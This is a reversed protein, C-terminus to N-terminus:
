IKIWAMSAMRQKTQNQRWSYFDDDLLTCRQDTQINNIGMQQLQVTAMHYLNAHSKNHKITTFAHESNPHQTLYHSVFEESVEYQAQQICPGLWAIMEHAPQIADCSTQIINSFLSRWGCHIAAVFSGKVDTLLIPLCDATMIACIIGPKRTFCADAQVSLQEDNPQTAYEIIHNGHVQSLLAPTHPLNFKRCMYDLQSQNSHAPHMDLQQDDDLYRTTQLALVSEPRQWQTILHTM